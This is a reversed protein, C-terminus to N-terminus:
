RPTALILSSDRPHWTYGFSFGLPAPNSTRYLEALDPQQHEKFTDIPARYAGFLRLNWKERDFFRLPIGADDQVIVKSHALLFDRASRFFDLHPLYSAAKLFSQAPGLTECFRVFAPNSKIGDNSLDSTFYYLTQRNGGPGFFIIRAGRTAPKEAVIAGSKDLGILEVSEIKSGSRALFVYLIPLTGSLQTNNLDTKMDKTIFFSFSLVANLAKRLNQLSADLAHSPLKTIDPITGVPELGCLVYTEANPFFAQAYLLDPGSFFYLVPDNATATESLFSGSWERIKGLQRTELQKWASDFETAHAVWAHTLAFSALPTDRVPLGALFRAQVDPSTEQASVAVSFVFAAYISAVHRFGSNLAALSLHTM